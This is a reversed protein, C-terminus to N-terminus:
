CGASEVSYGIACDTTPDLVPTPIVTKYATDMNLGQVRDISDRARTCHFDVAFNFIAEELTDGFGSVGDQLNSGLIVCMKNGDAGIRLNKM